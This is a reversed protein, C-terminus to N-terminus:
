RSLHSFERTATQNEKNAWAKEHSPYKEQWKPTGRFPKFHGKSANSQSLALPNPALLIAM